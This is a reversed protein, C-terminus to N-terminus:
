LCRPTKWRVATNVPRHTGTGTVPVTNAPVPVTDAKRGATNGTRFGLHFRFSLNRTAKRNHVYHKPASPGSVAQVILNYTHADLSGQLQM